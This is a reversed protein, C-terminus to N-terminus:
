DTVLLPRGVGLANALEALQGLSGLGHVFRTPVEVSRVTDVQVSV